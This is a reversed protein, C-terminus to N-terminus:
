LFRRLRQRLSAKSLPADYRVDIVEVGNAECLQRKLADREVVRSHAAEGGFVAVPRYHQEGQHEIVLKLEPLYIDLRMRGLWDPSAERLIRQDPFLERTIAYLQAERIWRSLGLVQQIEARATKRDVDMDSMVQDLYSEFGTEISAGYRRAAEEASHQRALCLHCLGDRYKAHKLMAVQKHPWSGPSYRSACGRAKALMHQHVAKACSCFSRDGTLVHDFSVTRFGDIDPGPRFNALLPQQIARPDIADRVRKFLAGPVRLHNLRLVHNTQRKLVSVKLQSARMIGQGYHIPVVELLSDSQVDIAQVAADPMTSFRIEAYWLEYGSRSLESLATPSNAVDSPDPRIVPPKVLRDGLVASVSEFLHTHLARAIAGAPSGGAVCLDHVVNAVLASGSLQLSLLM